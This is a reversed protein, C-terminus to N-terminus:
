KGQKKPQRGRRMLQWVGIGVAVLAIQQWAPIASWASVLIGPALTLLIVIGLVDGVYRVADAPKVIRLMFGLSTLILAIMALSGLLTAWGQMFHSAGM